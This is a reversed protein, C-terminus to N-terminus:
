EYNKESNRLWEAMISASHLKKDLKLFLLTEEKKNHTMFTIVPTYATLSKMGNEAPIYIKAKEFKPSFGMEKL